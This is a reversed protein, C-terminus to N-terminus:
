FLKFVGLTPHHHFFGNARGDDCFELVVHGWFDFPPLKAACLGDFEQLVPQNQPFFFVFLLLAPKCNEFGVKHWTNSLEDCGTFNLNLVAVGQLWLLSFHDNLDFVSSDAAGVQCKKLSIVRYGQGMDASVLEGADNFLNTFAHISFPDAFGDCCFDVVRADSM